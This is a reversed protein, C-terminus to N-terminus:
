VVQEPGPDGPGPEPAFFLVSLPPLALELAADHGHVDRQVTSRGGLNGWGSGGYEKADSNALEVWRGATPVGVWYPQRPVPTTRGRDTLASVIPAPLGLDAFTTM